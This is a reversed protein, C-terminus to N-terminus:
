LTAPLCPHNGKKRLLALADASDALTWRPSISDFLQVSHIHNLLLGYEPQEFALRMGTPHRGLQYLFDKTRTIDPLEIGPPRYHLDEIFYVGGPALYPFLTGLSIQQHHAAHSGDDIIIDFNGGAAAAAQRLADRNGQDVQFIKIRDNSFTTFDVLDFGFISAQPLYESWMRLSPCGIQDIESAREAQIQGHLLGIELMRIPRDRVPHLLAHYVRTFGHACNYNTGKDSLYRNALATLPDNPWLEEAM